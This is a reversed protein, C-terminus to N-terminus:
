NLNLLMKEHETFHSVDLGQACERWQQIRERSANQWFGHTSLSLPLGMYNGYLNHLYIHCDNPAFFELGEFRVKRLPFIDDYVHFFNTRDYGFLTCEIAPFLFANSPINQNQLVEQRYVAQMHERWENAVIDAGVQKFQEPNLLELSWCHSHFLKAWKQRTELPPIRSDNGFDYPFVDLNFNSDKFVARLIADHSVGFGDKQFM